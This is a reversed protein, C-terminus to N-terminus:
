TGRRRKASNGQDWLGVPMKSFGAWLL